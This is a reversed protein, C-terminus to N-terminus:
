LEKAANQLIEATKPSLYSSFLGAVAEASFDYYAAGDKTGIKFGKDLKNDQKIEIGGSIKGKLASTLEKELTNIDKASLLVALDESDKEKAWNKVTEPILTKLMNADYAKDVETKIIANLENLLGQRFSILTNRSAQEISAIAAKEFRSFESEGKKIIEQAETQAAAIISAAKQEAAKIIEDAKGDAVAIGEKKIKDVLEQLQVEM